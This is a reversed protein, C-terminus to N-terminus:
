TDGDGFAKLLQYDTLGTAKAKQRLDENLRGELHQVGLNAGELHAGNLRAGKLVALMLNARELHVNTLEADELCAQELDAGELHMGYFPGNSIPFGSSPEKWIRM